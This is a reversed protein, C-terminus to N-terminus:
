RRSHPVMYGERIRPRTTAEQAGAPGRRGRECRERTADQRVPDTALHSDGDRPEDAQDARDGVDAKARGVGLNRREVRGAIRQSRQTIPRDQRPDGKGLTEVAAAQDGRHREVGDDVDVAQVQRERIDPDDPDQGGGRRRQREQRPARDGISATREDGKAEAAGESQGPEDGVGQRGVDLYRQGVQAESTTDGRGVGGTVVILPALRERYLSLAHDLRARLVPSPRGNYQAAGLVVIADVPRRQDQQSVVLVMILSVTYM